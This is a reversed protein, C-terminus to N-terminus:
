ISIWCLCKYEATSECIYCHYGLEDTAKYTWPANHVDCKGNNWIKREIRYSDIASWIILGVIIGIEIIM